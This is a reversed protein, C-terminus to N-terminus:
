DLEEDSFVGDESPFDPEEDSYVNGDLTIVSLTVGEDGALKQLKGPDAEPFMDDTSAEGDYSISLSQLTASALLFPAVSNHNLRNSWEEFVFILDLKRLHLNVLFSSIASTEAPEFNLCLSHLSPLSPLPPVPTTGEFIGITLSQLTDGLSIILNRLLPMPIDSFRLCLDAVPGQWNNSLSPHALTTCYWSTFTKLHCLNQIAGILASRGGDSSEDYFDDLRLSKILPFGQVLIAADWSSGERVSINGRGSCITLDEISERVHSPLASAVEFWRGEAPIALKVLNPLTPAIELFYPCLRLLGATRTDQADFQEDDVENVQHFSCRWGVHRAM